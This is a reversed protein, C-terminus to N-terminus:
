APEIGGPLKADPPRAYVPSPREASQEALDLLVRPDLEPGETFVSDVWPSAGIEALVHAAGSGTPQAGGDMMPSLWDRAAKVTLREPAGAAEGKDFLQVVCEGRRADHIVAIRNQLLPDAMRALVALNSVGAAEAGTALALGRAFAVGVRTGAFSGPGIAVGIRDLDRAALGAENLLEAVLPALREAHGRGITLRRGALRRGDADAITAACDPGTTDIALLSM